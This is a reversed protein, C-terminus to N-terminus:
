CYKDVYFKAIKTQPHDQGLLAFFSDYAAQFLPQADDTQGLDALVGGLNLQSRAISPHGPEFSKQDSSLAMRLLDRAEELQGLDKLMLALNSQHKAIESHGPEYNSESLDLAMRGYHKSLQYRGWKSHHGQLSSFISIKYAYGMLESSCLVVAHPVIKELEKYAASDSENDTRAMETKVAAVVKEFLDADSFTSQIFGSILRHMFPDNDQDLEILSLRKLESIADDLPDDLCSDSEDQYLIPQILRLPVPTADLMSMVQLVPMSADSVLDLSMQFTAAVEKNHGTPMDDAYKKAFISLAALQSKAQIDHILQEISVKPRLNLFHRTLELALPLGGLLDVLGYAAEGFQRQDSNLLALGEQHNMCALALRAYALDRRRTTVLTHISSSPPLWPQLPETELFNDLVILVKGWQSMIQWIQVLQAKDDLKPDLDMHATQKIDNVMESLGQEANIWFVGGPYQYGLRHVYEVATQTKGLGGTGMIIGVGEIVATQKNQLIDHIQWIDSVRGIFRNGLSRFPMHHTKPLQQIPPLLSRDLAHIEKVVQGGLQSCITPYHQEFLASSSVDILQIPKLFRPIDCHTLLLPKMKRKVNNPDDLMTTTYELKGWESEIYHPSLVIVLFDAQDLGKELAM